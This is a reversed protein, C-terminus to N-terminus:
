PREAMLGASVDNQRKPQGIVTTIAGAKRVESRRSKTLPISGVEFHRCLNHIVM